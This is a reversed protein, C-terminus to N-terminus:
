EPPPNPDRGTRVWNKERRHVFTAYISLKSVIYSPVAWLSRAVGANEFRLLVGGLSFAMALGGMVTPLIPLWGLGLVGAAISASLVALWLLILLSLPPVLLDLFVAFLDLRRQRIAGVLLKPGQVVMCELSGHLWRKSQSAQAWKQGPLRSTVKAERCFAPAHGALILECSLWMDETLRGNAWMANRMISAPFAMGSGTLFCPLGLRDLGSPRVLNKICFALRAIPQLATPNAPLEMLYSAQVPRGTSFAMGALEDLAGPHLDCDADVVVFVDHSNEPLSRLAYDIAYGKGRRAADHRELVLSGAQRAIDVTGDSCNDAIVVVCDGPLIQSTLGALTHRIIAAEDHAPVLVAVTPRVAQTARVRRRGPLVAAACEVSWVAM